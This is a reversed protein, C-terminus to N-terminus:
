AWPVKTQPLHQALKRVLAPSTREWEEAIADQLEEVTAAPRAEVRRALDNWLNEIPNLDPSYAPFDLLSIGSNFLWTRVLNSKHM